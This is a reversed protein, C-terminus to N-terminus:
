LKPFTFLTKGFHIIIINYNFIIFTLHIITYLKQNLTQQNKVFM